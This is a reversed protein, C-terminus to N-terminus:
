SESIIKLPKGFALTGPPIDKTVLSDSGVLAGEGIRMGARVTTFGGIFVGDEIWVHGAALILKYKKNNSVIIKLVEIRGKEKMDVLKNFSRPTYPTIIHTFVRAGWGFFVNDGIHIFEPFVPDFVVGPSIFVDEGMDVGMRRIWWNKIKGPPTRNAIAMLVYNRYIRWKPKFNKHLDIWDM